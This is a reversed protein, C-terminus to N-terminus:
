LLLFADTRWTYQRGLLMVKGEMLGGGRGPTLGGAPFGSGHVDPPDRDDCLGM